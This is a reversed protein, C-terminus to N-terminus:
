IKKFFKLSKIHEYLGKPSFFTSVVSHGFVLTQGSEIRLAFNPKLPAGDITTGFKSGSDTVTVSGDPLPRFFGHLKSVYQNQIVIDNNTARGISIMNTFANGATKRLPFVMDQAEGSQPKVQDAEKKHVVEVKGTSFLSAPATKHGHILLFPVDYRRVFDELSLDKIEEAFRDLKLYPSVKM